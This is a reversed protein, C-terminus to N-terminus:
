GSRRRLDGRPDRSYVRLTQRAPNYQFPNVQVVVGRHDRLVYPEHLEALAGPFFANRGYHPGFEYPVTAPDVSRSLNGKSPAVSLHIERFEADLVRVAMAADDPVIVSRNVHPLAPAGPELFAPEGPLSIEHYVAGDIEVAASDYAGFTFRLVTRGPDDTEVEVRVPDAAWALGSCLFVTALCAVAVVM